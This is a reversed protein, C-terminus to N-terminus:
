VLKSNCFKAMSQLIMEKSFFYYKWNVGLMNCYYFNFCIKHIKVFYLAKGCLVACKDIISWFSSPTKLLFKAIKFIDVIEAVKPSGLMRNTSNKVVYNTSKLDNSHEYITPIFKVNSNSIKM